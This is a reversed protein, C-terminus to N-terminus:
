KVENGILHGPNTFSSQLYLMMTILAFLIFPQKLKSVTSDTDEVESIMSVMKYSLFLNMSLYLAPVIFKSTPWKRGFFFKLPQAHMQNSSSRTTYQNSTMTSYRSTDISSNAAPNNM